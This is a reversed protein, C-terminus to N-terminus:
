PPVLSIMFSIMPLPSPNYSEPAPFGQAKASPHAVQQQSLARQSVCTAVRVNRCARQSVCTAVRVNTTTKEGVNAM